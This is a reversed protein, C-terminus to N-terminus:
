NLIIKDHCKTINLLQQFIVRGFESPFTNEVKIEQKVALMVEFELCQFAVAVLSAEDVAFLKTPNGTCQKSRNESLRRYAKVAEIFCQFLTHLISVFM